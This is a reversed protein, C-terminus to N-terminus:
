ANSKRYRNAGTPHAHWRPWFHTLPEDSSLSDARLPLLTEGTDHRFFKESGKIRTNIQKITSEMLSSTLPLGAQRYAQQREALRNQGIQETIRRIRKGSIEIGALERLAAEAQAFSGLNAGAWVIKELM